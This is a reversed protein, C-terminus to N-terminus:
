VFCFYEGYKESRQDVTPVMGLLRYGKNQVAVTLRKPIDKVRKQIENHIRTFLGASVLVRRRMNTIAMLKNVRAVTTLEKV